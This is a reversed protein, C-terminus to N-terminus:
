GLKKDISAFTSALAASDSSASKLLEKAKDLNSAIESNEDANIAVAGKALITAKFENVEAFGSDIAIYEHKQDEKEIDIVGAKLSAILSAHGKLIGFEGESGPLVVPRVEGAYIMGMPTVIDLQILDNM